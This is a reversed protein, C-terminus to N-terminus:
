GRHPQFLPRCSLSQVAAGDGQEVPGSPPDSSRKEFTISGDAWKQDIIHRGSGPLSKLALFFSHGKVIGGIADEACGTKGGAGYQFIRRIKKTRGGNNLGKSKQRVTAVIPKLGTQGNEVCGIAYPGALVMKFARTATGTGDLDGFSNVLGFVHDMLFLLPM